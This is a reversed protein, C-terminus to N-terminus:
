SSVRPLRGRGLLGWLSRRLWRNLGVSEKGVPAARPRRRERGAATQRAASWFHEEFHQPSLAEASILGMRYLDSADYKTSQRIIKTFKSGLRSPFEEETLHLLYDGIASKLRSRVDGKGVCLAELAATVPELVGRAKMIEDADGVETRYAGPRDRHPIIRLPMRGM